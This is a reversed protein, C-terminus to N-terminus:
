RKDSKRITEYLIVFKMARNHVTKSIGIREYIIQNPANWLIYMEYVSPNRKYKLYFLKIRSDLIKQTVSLSIEPNTAAKPNKVYRRWLTPRIQYRSIERHTGVKYDAKSQVYLNLPATTEFRGLTLLFSLYIAQM